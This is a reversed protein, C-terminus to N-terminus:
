RFAQARRQLPSDYRGQEKSTHLSVKGMRQPLMRSFLPWNTINPLMDIIMICQSRLILHLFAPRPALFEVNFRRRVEDDITTLISISYLNDLVKPDKKRKGAFVKDDVCDHALEQPHKNRGM